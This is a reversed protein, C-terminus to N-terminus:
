FQRGMTFEFSATDDGQEELLAKAFILSIPGMPSVWELVAGTGARIELIVNKEDNPDKPILLKKLETELQELKEELEKKEEKALEVLEPEEGMDIIDIAEEIGQKTKQAIDQFDKMQLHFKSSQAEWRNPYIYRLCCAWHGAQCTYHKHTVM